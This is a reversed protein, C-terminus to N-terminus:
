AGGFPRNLVNTLNDTIWGACVETCPKSSPGTHCRSLESLIPMKLYIDLLSKSEKYGVLHVPCWKM